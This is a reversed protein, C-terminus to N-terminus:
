KGAQQYSAPTSASPAIEIKYVEKLFLVLFIGSFALVAIGVVGSQLRFKQMSVEMEVSAQESKPQRASQWLQYGAFAVGSISLISVLMLITNAAFIQWAYVRTKIDFLAAESDFYAIVYKERATQVSSSESMSAQLEQIQRQLEPVRERFLELEAREQDALPAAQAFCLCPVLWLLCLAKRLLSM